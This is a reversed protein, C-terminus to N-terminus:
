KLKIEIIIIGIVCFNGSHISFPKILSNDNFMYYLLLRKIYLFICNFYYRFLLINLLLESKEPSNETVIFNLFEEINSLKYQKNM